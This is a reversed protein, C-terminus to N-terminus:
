EEEFDFDIIYPRYLMEYLTLPPFTIAWVAGTKCTKEKGKIGFWNFKM